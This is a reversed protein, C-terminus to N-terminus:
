GDELEEGEFRVDTIVSEKGEKPSLLTFYISIAPKVTVSVSLKDEEENYRFSDHTWTNSHGWGLYRGGVYIWGDVLCGFTDAGTTTASPLVTIDVTDDEMCSWFSLITLLILISKKM